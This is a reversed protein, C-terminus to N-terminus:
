LADPQPLGPLIGLFENRVTLSGDTKKEIGAAIFDAVTVEELTTYSTKMLVAKCDITFQNPSLELPEFGLSKIIVHTSDTRNLEFYGGENSIASTTGLQISAGAISEGTDSSRLTGCLINASTRPESIAIYRANLSQFNLGTQQSLVQLSNALSTRRPPPDVNVEAISKDAFTFAVNFQKELSQLITRLPQKGTNVQAQTTFAILLIGTLFAGAHKTVM